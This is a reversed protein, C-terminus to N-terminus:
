IPSLSLLKEEVNNDVFISCMKKLYSPSNITLLEPKYVTQISKYSLSFGFQTNVRELFAQDNKLIWELPVIIVDNPFKCAFDLASLNYANWVRIAWFPDIYLKRSFKRIWRIILSYVVQDCPRWVIITKLNPILEKWENLFLCTRPDKWGWNGDLRNQRISIIEKAIMIDSMSFDLENFATIKWGGSFRNQRLISKEQLYMFDADEFFGMKNGPVPPLVNGQDTILGCRKVWSTVLSTGSRHMGTISLVM